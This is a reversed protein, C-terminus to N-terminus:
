GILYDYLCKLQFHHLSAQLFETWPLNSGNTQVDLEPGPVIIDVSENVESESHRRKDNAFESEPLAKCLGYLIKGSLQLNRSKVEIKELERETCIWAGGELLNQFSPRQNRNKGEYM